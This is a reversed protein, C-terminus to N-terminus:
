VIIVDSIDIMFFAFATPTRSLADAHRRFIDLAFNIPPM